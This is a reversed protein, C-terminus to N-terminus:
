AAAKPFEPLPLTKGDGIRYPEPPFAEMVEGGKMCWQYTRFRSHEGVHQPTTYVGAIGIRGNESTNPPSYHAVSSHWCVMDGPQLEIHHVGGVGGYERKWADVTEHPIEGHISDDYLVHTAIPAHQTGPIMQLCGNARTAPDLAM